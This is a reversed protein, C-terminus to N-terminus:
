IETNTARMKNNQCIKFVLSLFIGIKVHINIKKKGWM